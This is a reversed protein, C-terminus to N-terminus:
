EGETQLAEIEAVDEPHAKRWRKRDARIQALHAELTASTLLIGFDDPVTRGPEQHDFIRDLVLDGLSKQYHSSEFYWHMRTETDGLPPVPETTLSNYGSFDWIPFPRRSYRQAEEENIAVM